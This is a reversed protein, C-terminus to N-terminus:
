HPPRCTAYDVIRTLDFSRGLDVADDYADGGLAARARDAATRRLSEDPRYYGYVDSGVAERLSQAAGLLVAVRASQGAADEVVALVDLFYALNALDRTQESLRVGEELHARAREHDGQEIRAQSLNFLAVYIALRDGRRRAAALGREIHPVAQAPGTELMVATGLWVHILAGIWESRAGAREAVPVAGRLLSAATWPDGTALACLAIGPLSLAQGELDGAAEAQGYAQRWRGRAVEYDGQAFAMSAASCLVRTHLPGSLPGELVAELTRRGYLLHGRLWWYLWLAWCLRGATEASGDCLAWHIARTMNGHEADTVELWRVQDAGRYQSAAREALELCWGVHAREANRAEAPDADLLTRAYQATPELLRYRLPAGATSGSDVVVLSQTVLAELAPLVGSGTGRPTGPGRPGAHDRGGDARGGSEGTGVAEAAELTFGDCCVALRRLLRQEAEGLLSFSWDLTARMTRQREPLDPDGGGSMAEDLRALLLSPDLFRMRAAAIELALPIGALRTCVAAVAPANESSLRFGPSVARAREVFLRVAATAIDEVATEGATPLALPRVPYETEAGVRLAARSTVLVSLRPCAAILRAVEPAAPALHEFNDLVLLLRRERLQEVLASAIDGGEAEEVGRLGVGHGVASLVLGPDGVPALPVFVVGDPFEAAVARCVAVGLRTKGVGGTGTLTVLRREPRRLLACVEAVERDRGVLATGPAAPLGRVAGDSETPNQPHPDASLRRCSAEVLAALDGPTADLALALSRITHPYPRKRAGRELAGVAHASVGARDALEEQTLGARERLARLLVGFSERGPATSRTDEIM